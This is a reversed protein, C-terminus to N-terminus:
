TQLEQLKSLAEGSRGGGDASKKRSRKASACNSDQSAKNLWRQYKRKIIMCKKCKCDHPKMKYKRLEDLKKELNIYLSQDYWM